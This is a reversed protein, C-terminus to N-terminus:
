ADPGEKPFIMCTESGHAYGKGASDVLRADGPANELPSRVARTLGIDTPLAAFLSM